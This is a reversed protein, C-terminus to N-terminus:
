KRSLNPAGSVNGTRKTLSYIPSNINVVAQRV